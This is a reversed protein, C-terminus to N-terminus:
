REGQKLYSEPDDPEYVSLRASQRVGDGSVTCEFSGLGDGGGLIRRVKVELVQGSSFEAVSSEFLRTGLLFGLKVPLGKRRAQLGSYASVAQAMYELGMSAPVRSAVDFLGDNGVVVKCVIYDSGSELLQELLLMPKRHPLLEEIAYEDLM